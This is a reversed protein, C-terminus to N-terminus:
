QQVIFICANKNEIPANKFGYQLRSPFKPSIVKVLRFTIDSLLEFFDVGSLLKHCFTM